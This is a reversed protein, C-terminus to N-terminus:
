MMLYSKSPHSSMELNLIMTYLTTLNTKDDAIVNLLWFYTVDNLIDFHGQNKISFISKSFKKM